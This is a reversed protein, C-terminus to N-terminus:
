SVLMRVQKGTAPDTWTGNRLKEFEAPSHERITKHIFNRLNQTTYTHAALLGPFTRRALLLLM